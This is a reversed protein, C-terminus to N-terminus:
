GIDKDTVVPLSFPDHKEEEVLKDTYDAVDQVTMGPPLSTWYVHCNWGEEGFSFIINELVTGPEEEKGQWWDAIRRLTEYQNPMDLYQRLHVAGDKIDHEIM